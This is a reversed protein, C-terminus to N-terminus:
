FNFNDPDAGFRKDANLADLKAMDGASLTFDYVKANEVIRAQHTSKPITIVGHQLDWRILVQAPSKGNRRAIESLVPSEGMHGHMLPSWATVIIGNKDCFARLPVQTLLPHLEVQNVM